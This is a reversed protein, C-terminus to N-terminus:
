QSPPERLTAHHQPPEPAACPLGKMTGGLRFHRLAGGSHLGVGRSYPHDLPRGQPGLQPAPSLTYDMRSERPPVAQPRGRNISSPPTQLWGTPFPIRLWNAFYDSSDGPPYRQSDATYAAPQVQCAAPLRSSGQVGWDGQMALEFHPPPPLRTNGRVVDTGLPSRKSRPDSSGEPAESSTLTVRAGM